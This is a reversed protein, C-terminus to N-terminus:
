WKNEEEPRRVTLRYGTGYYGSGENSTVTLVGPGPLGDKMVFLRYTSAYGGKGGFESSLEETAAVSMVKGGELAYQSVEGYACCDLSADVVLLTGDDLLLEIEEQRLSVDTIERGVLAEAWEETSPSYESM